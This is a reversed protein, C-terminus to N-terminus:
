FVGYEMVLDALKGNNEFLVGNLAASFEKGKERVSRFRKDEEAADFPIEALHDRIEKDDLMALFDDYVKLAVKASEVSNTMLCTRCFMEVPTLEILKKIGQKLREEPESKYDKVPLLNWPWEKNGETDCLECDLTLLLGKLFLMKRTFRLKSNRLAWKKDNQHWKKSAYDVAMTRWLRVFDNLLFRPVRLENSDQREVGRGYKLYRELLTSIVSERGLSGQISVSELLLLLRRTMNANTDAFGGINHVLEHSSTLGGFLGSSGPEIFKGAELSQFIKQSVAYHDLDSPGNVLYTWDVDSGSTFEQRGLSGFVIFECSDSFSIGEKEICGRIDDLKKETTTRAKEIAPYNEGLRSCLDQYFSPAPADDDLDDVM